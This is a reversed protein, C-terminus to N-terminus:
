LLEFSVLLLIFDIKITWNYQISFYLIILMISFFFLQPPLGLYIWIMRGYKDPEFNKQGEKLGMGREGPIWTGFLKVQQLLM